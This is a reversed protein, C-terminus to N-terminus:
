KLRAIYINTHRWLRCCANQSSNILTIPVFICNSFSAVSWILICSVCQSSLEFRGLVFYICWDGHVSPPFTLCSNGMSHFTTRRDRSIFSTKVFEEVTYITLPLHRHNICQVEWMNNSKSSFCILSKLVIKKMYLFGPERSWQKFLSQNIWAKM